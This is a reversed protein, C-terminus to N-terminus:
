NGWIGGTKRHIKELKNKKQIHDVIEGKRQNYDQGLYVPKGETAKRLERIENILIMSEVTQERKKKVSSSALIALDMNSMSRPIMSNQSPSLIREDGDVRIIHGDKGSLQPTLHDGVREAGEFFGALNAIFAQLLTVDTITSALPNPDGSAVKASYTEIASLALEAQKQREVQRERELELEAQRRENLALNREATENGADALAQLSSARDEEAQIESEIDGIRKEFAKDTLESITNFAFEQLEKRKEIAKEEEEQEKSIRNQQQELLKENLESQINLFEESGEEALTKRTQLNKIENELRKDSLDSLITEIDVGEKQLDLIAQETLILDSQLDSSERRAENLDREAEELDRNALRRERIIELARGALVDDLGSQEIQRAIAESSTEEQLKDFDLIAKGQKQLTDNLEKEQQDFSENSLRRTENLLEQRREFTETEDAIIRENVTKQNDFDDILFDLRRETADRELENIKKINEERLAAQEAEKQALEIVAQALEERSELSFKNVKATEQAIQLRRQAIEIENAIILENTKNLDEQAKIQEQLSLTNNDAAIQQQAQTAILQASNEELSVIEKRFRLTTDILKVNRSVLNSIEDGMGEFVSSLDPISKSSLEDVIKQYEDVEKQNRGFVNQLKALRLDVKAIALDLKDGILPVLSTLRDVFVAITITVSQIGKQLNAAGESNKNFADTILEILKLVIGAAAFTKFATNLRKVSTEVGRIGKALNPSTKELKELALRYRGVDRRGDRAADNVERLQDDLEEFQKQAKQAQQSNIGFEVALAKFQKQAENTRKTLDEFANRNNLTEKAQDTLEKTQQRIQERLEFNQKIRQDELKSLNQQLRAREKEVQDLEQVAKKTNEIGKEVKEINEYSDLPTSKALKVGQDIVNKLSESTIGLLKNLEEVEKILPELVKPEAIQDYSLKKNAM